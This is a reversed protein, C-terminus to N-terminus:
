IHRFFEKKYLNKKIDSPEISTEKKLIEYLKNSNFNQFFFLRNEM